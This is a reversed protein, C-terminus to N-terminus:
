VKFGCLIPGEYDLFYKVTESLDNINDCSISRICFSDALKVYDPNYKNDTATYREEFFLKEWIKVMMLANDNIVAIKIPLNYEKITKLENLTMNFSGDGDISIVTKNPNAIQTGVAYGISCGMVGLSGSAIISNPKKWDIFQCAMMM